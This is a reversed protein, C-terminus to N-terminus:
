NFFLFEPPRNLCDPTKIENFDTFKEQENNSTKESLYKSEEMGINIFADELTNM